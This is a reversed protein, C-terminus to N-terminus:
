TSNTNCSRCILPETKGILYGHTARSHGIILRNLIVEEKRGLSNSTLNQGSNLQFGVIQNENGGLIMTEALVFFTQNENGDFRNRGIYRFYLTLVM